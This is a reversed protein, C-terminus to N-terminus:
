AFDDLLYIYFSLVNFEFVFASMSFSVWMVTKEKWVPHRDKWKRIVIEALAPVYDQLGQMILDRFFLAAAIVVVSLITVFVM